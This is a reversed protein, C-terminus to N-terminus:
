KVRVIKSRPVGSLASTDSANTVFVVVDATKVDDLELLTKLDLTTYMAIREVPALDLRDSWEQLVRLSHNPSNTVIKYQAYRRSKLFELAQPLRAKAEDLSGSVDIAILIKEETVSQTLHTTAGLGAYCAVLIGAWLAFAKM